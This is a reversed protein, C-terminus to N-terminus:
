PKGDGNLKFLDKINQENLFSRILEVQKKLKANETGLEVIRKQYMEVSKNLEESKRLLVERIRKNIKQSM